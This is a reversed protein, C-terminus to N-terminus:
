PKPKLRIEFLKPWWKGTLFLRDGAADYAIGNLVDVNGTQDEVPLLGTLDISSNVKGTQPDIRVIRQTQWINAFIEGKIYELENLNRVPQGNETVEITRQVDFNAPDIFRIVNTGDSMILSQGNHTLGWGEGYYTFEGIKDFSSPDYIFGKHSQWTLQYVKDQLITMGEAFFEKPVDIQKLVNGTQLDVRRLSSKGNLGTSEILQNQYFILGQTFANHDHPYSHVVEYTYNTASSMPIPTSASNNNNTQSDTCQAFLLSILIVTFIKLRKLM